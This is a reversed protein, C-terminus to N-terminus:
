REEHGSVALLVKGMPGAKLREFAQPLQEFTFVHDVMPRAGARTIIALLNNWAQRSEAPTYAGVNVGGMRLRRFFLTATNFQPVPGALMGVCNIRGNNGMTEIVQPLLAGGINDIALDVRKGSLITKLSKVWTPDNPHFTHAAGLQKLQAQKGPDRSLAIVTHGMAAALQTGAIGVGGSAGTILVVSPPLDGWQTLAQYATLYVLPAAAAEQETWGSPLRALSEDPVAVLEAFTGPRNVGIESRLIIRKDGVATGEVGPGVATVVGAGDRGLIHPFAPKAPYQGEALYRDAPNLAACSVRLIVEGAKPSPDPVEQLRLSDIGTRDPLLWARM